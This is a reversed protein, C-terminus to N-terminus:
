NFYDREYPNETKRVRAIQGLYGLSIEYGGRARTVRALSSHNVDYSFAFRINNYEFGFSAIVSDMVRWHLGAFVQQGAIYQYYTTGFNFQRAGGQAFIIFSPQILRSGERNLKYEADGHVILTSPIRSVFVENIIAEQIGGLHFYSAGM